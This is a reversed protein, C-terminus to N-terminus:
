CRGQQLARTASAGVDFALANIQGGQCQLSIWSARRVGQLAGALLAGAPM